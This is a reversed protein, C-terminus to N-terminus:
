KKLSAIDTSFKVTLRDVVQKPCYASVDGGLRAVDKILSSSVFSAREGAPLFVTDISPELSRNMHAMQFEHEFDQVARLGRVIIKYGRGTMFQVLLGDFHTVIIRGEGFQACAHSMMEVREAVTFLPKKAPNFAIAVVLTSFLGLGREIIDLHGNTVPDYSGPFVATADMLSRKRQSVKDVLSIM